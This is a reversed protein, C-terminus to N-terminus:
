GKATKRRKSPTKKSNRRGKGKLGDVDEDNSKLDSQSYDLLLARRTMESLIAEVTKRMRKISGHEHVIMIESLQVDTLQMMKSLYKEDVRIRKSVVEDVESASLSTTHTQFVYSTRVLFAADQIDEKDSIDLDFVECISEEFIRNTIKQVRNHMANSFKRKM